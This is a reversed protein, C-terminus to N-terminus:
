RKACKRTPISSAVIREVGGRGVAAILRDCIENRLRVSEAGQLLRIMTDMAPAGVSDLYNLMDEAQKNWQAIGDTLYELTHADCLKNRLATCFQRVDEAQSPKDMCDSLRRLAARLKETLREQICNEVLREVINHVDRLVSPNGSLAIFDFMTDLLLLMGDARKEELLEEHCLKLEESGVQFFMELLEEIRREREADEFPVGMQAALDGFYSDLSDLEANNEVTVRGKDQFMPLLELHDDTDLPSPDESAATGEGEGFEGSLYEDLVRYSIHDFDARWLKTVVDDEPSARLMEDIIINAFKEAEEFNLSNRFSIEGIGDKYLLFAISEERKSNEYIVQDEWKISYQDVMLVIEDHQRFFEDFASRIEKSFTTLLPNNKAYLKKGQIFKVLCKIIQKAERLATLNGEPTDGAITGTSEPHEFPTNM